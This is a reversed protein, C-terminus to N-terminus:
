NTRKDMPIASVSRDLHAPDPQPTPRMLEALAAILIAEPAPKWVIASRPWEAKLWAAEHWGTYYLIPVSRGTLMEALPSVRTHRVVVDLIAASLPHREALRFGDELSLAPGIVEAGQSELMVQLSLALLAEDEVILIRTGALLSKVQHGRGWPAGTVM